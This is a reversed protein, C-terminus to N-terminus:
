AFLRFAKRPDGARIAIRGQAVGRLWRARFPTGAATGDPPKRRGKGGTGQLARKRSNTYVILLHPTTRYNRPGHADPLSPMITFTFPPYLTTELLPFFRPPGYLVFSSAWFRRRWTSNKLCRLPYRQPLPLPPTAAQSYGGFQNPKYGLIHYGTTANTARTFGKSEILPAALVFKSDKKQQVAPPPRSAGFLEFYYFPFVTFSCPVTLHNLALLPNPNM